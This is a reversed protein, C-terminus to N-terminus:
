EVGAAREVRFDASMQVALDLLASKGVGPEGRVVLVESHGARVNVLLRDLAGIEVYRGRLVHGPAESSVPDSAVVAAPGQWDAQGRM